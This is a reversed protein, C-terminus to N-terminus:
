QVSGARGTQGGSEKGLEIRHNRILTRVCALLASLGQAVAPSLQDGLEFSAAGISVLRAQPRRGYLQGAMALLVGPTFDHTFSEGSPGPLEVERCSLTGPPDGANADIFIVLSARSIKEALEPLLQHCVIVEAFDGDVQDELRRAAEPGVGDDGRLPNGYGIILIDIV